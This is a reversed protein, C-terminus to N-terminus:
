EIDEDYGVDDKLSFENSEFFDDEDFAEEPMIEKILATLNYLLPQLCLEGETPTIIAVASTELLELVEYTKLMDRGIRCLSKVLVADISHDDAAKIMENLGTRDYNLGSGIDESNGIIVFGKQEAFAILNEKQENVVIQADSDVRCYIWVRKPSNDIYISM